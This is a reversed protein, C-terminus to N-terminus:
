FNDPVDGFNICGHEATQFYVMPVKECNQAALTVCLRLVKTECRSDAPMAVSVDAQWYITEGRRQAPSRVTVYVSYHQM